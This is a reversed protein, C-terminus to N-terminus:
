TVANRDGRSTWQGLIRGHEDHRLPYEHESEVESERLREGLRRRLGEVAHAADPQPVVPADLSSRPDAHHYVGAFYDPILLLPEEQETAVRAELTPVIGFDRLRSMEAWQELHRRFMARTEESRLDSDVVLEFRATGRRAGLPQGNGVLWGMLRASVQSMLYMRMVEDGDLYAVKRRLRAAAQTEFARAQEYFNAWRAPTRYTQVVEVTLGHAAVIAAVNGLGDLGGRKWKQPEGGFRERLRGRLRGLIEPSAAVAASTVIVNNGPSRSVQGAIDAFLSWTGLHARRRGRKSV